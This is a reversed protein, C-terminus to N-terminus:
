VKTKKLTTLRKTQNRGVYTSGSQVVKGMWQSFSRNPETKDLFPLNQLGMTRQLTKHTHKSVTAKSKTPSPVKGIGIVSEYWWPSRVRQM